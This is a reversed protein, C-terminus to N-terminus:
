FAEFILNIIETKMPKNQLYNILLRRQSKSLRKIYDITDSFNGNVRSDIILNFYDEITKIEYQKLTDKGIM